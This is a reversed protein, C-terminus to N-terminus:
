LTKPTKETGRHYGLKDGREGDQVRERNKIGGGLKSEGRGWEGGPGSWAMGPYEM